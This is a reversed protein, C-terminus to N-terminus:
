KRPNRVSEPDFKEDVAQEFIWLPQKPIASEALDLKGIAENRGYRWAKTSLDAARSKLGPNAALMDSIRFRANRISMRWLRRNGSKIPDSAYVPKLLHEILAECHSALAEAHRGALDGAEEALNDWDLEGSRRERLARAQALAWSNPDQDYLASKSVGVNRKSPLAM